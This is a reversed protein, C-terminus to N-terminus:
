EEPPSTADFDVQVGGRIAMVRLGRAGQLQDTVVPLDARLQRAQLTGIPLNLAPDPEMAVFDFEIYGDASPAGGRRARLSPSAYGIGQATGFATILFGDRTRGLEVARVAMIPVRILLARQREAELARERTSPEGWLTGVDATVDETEGCSGVVALIAVAGTIRVLRKAM